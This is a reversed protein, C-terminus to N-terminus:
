IAGSRTRMWPTLPSGGGDVSLTAMFSSPPYRLSMAIANVPRSTSHFALTTASANQAAQGYSGSSKAEITVRTTRVSLGSGAVFSSAVASHRIETFSGSSRLTPRANESATMSVASDLM